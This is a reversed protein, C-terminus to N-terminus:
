VDYLGIKLFKQIVAFHRDRTFIVADNNFANVSILWDTIPIKYGKRIAIYNLHAIDNLNSDSIPLLMFMNFYRLLTNYEKDNRAGGLVEAMIIKNTAVLGNLLLDKLHLAQLSESKNFYDIWISTDVLVM